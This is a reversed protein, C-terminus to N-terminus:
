YGYLPALGTRDVLDAAIEIDEETPMAPEGENSSQALYMQFGLALEEYTPKMAVGGAIGAAKTPYLGEICRSKLRTDNPAKRRGIGFEEDCRRVVLRKL